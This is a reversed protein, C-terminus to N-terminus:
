AQNEAAAMKVCGNKWWRINEHYKKRRGAALTASESIKGAARARSVGTKAMSPQKSVGSATVGIITM